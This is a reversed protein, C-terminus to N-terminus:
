GERITKLQFIFKQDRMRLYIHSATPPLIIM